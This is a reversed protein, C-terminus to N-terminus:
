LGIPYSKKKGIEKPIYDGSPMVVITSKVDEPVINPKSYEVVSKSQTYDLQRQEVDDQKADVFNSTLDGCVLGDSGDICFLIMKLIFIRAYIIKCAELNMISM